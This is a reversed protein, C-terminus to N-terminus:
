GYVSEKLHENCDLHIRAKTEVKHKSIQICQELFLQKAWQWQQENKAHLQTIPQGKEVQGGLPILESFGTTYDLKSTTSRTLAQALEGVHRTNYGSIFGSESATVPRVFGAESLYKDPAELLNAPGGLESVMKGFCAAARGSGLASIASLYAEQYNDKIKAVVLCEAALHLTVAKLCPNQMEGILFAIAEKVELGNGVSYALPSNMDTLATKCRLGMSKAVSSLSKALQKATAKESMFAGNGYKVDVVLADLGEAYKKALISATILGISNVTDTQHRISYIRKDAPAVEESQGVIAIGANKVCKKFHNIDPTVQYGPISELKDITGGTHGLSRGSIMPVYAGCAALIPGLVLSVLDGVGGTSHKDVVPGPLEWRFLTGTEAMCRSFDSIERANMGNIQTATTFAAIQVDTISNDVVGGVFGELQAYSFPFHQKKTKIFAPFDM